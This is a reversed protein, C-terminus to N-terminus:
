LYNELLEHVYKNARCDLKMFEPHWQIAIGKEQPFYVLEPEVPVDNPPIYRGVDAYHISRKRKSWAIMKHEVEFPYMMQHHLSSVPIVLGEDTEVEHTNGHGTVDQVLFGGALACLMQAGRCIGIIPLRMEKARQMLAWEIADRRSPRDDAHTHGSNPRDYLSPSIDSGGWVVLASDEELDDPDTTTEFANFLGMEDFPYYGNYMASFLKM